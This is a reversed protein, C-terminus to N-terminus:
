GNEIRIYGNKIITQPTVVAGHLIIPVGPTWAAEAVAPSACVILILVATLAVSSATPFSRPRRKMISARRGDMENETPELFRKQTGAALCALLASRIGTVRAFMPTGGRRRRDQSLVGGVGNRFRGGRSLLGNAAAYSQIVSRSVFTVAPSM